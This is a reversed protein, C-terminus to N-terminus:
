GAHSVIGLVTVNGRIGQWAHTGTTYGDFGACPPSACAAVAFNQPVGVRAHAIEFYLVHPSSAADVYVTIGESGEIYTGDSTWIDYKIRVEDGPKVDPYTTALSWWILGSVVAILSVGIVVKKIRRWNHYTPQRRTPDDPDQRHKPSPRPM